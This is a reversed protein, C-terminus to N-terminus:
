LLNVIYGWLNSSICMRLNVMLILIFYIVLIFYLKRYTKKIYSLFFSTLISIFPFIHVLYVAKIAEGEEFATYQILFWLYGIFITLVISLLVFMTMKIRNKFALVLCFIISSLIILSPVLNLFNVIGLYRNLFIDRSHVVSFRMWYDGWIESYLIPWLQNYFSGQLPVTFLKDLSLSFYFSAPQNDFFFINDTDPSAVYKIFSGTTFFLHLYFAGGVIFATVLLISYTKILSIFSEKKMVFFFIGSGFIGLIVFLGLQISLISLGLFFGCLILPTVKKERLYKLFCYVAIISCTALYPNPRPFAFTKYYAPFVGLILMTQIKFLYDGNKIIDCINLLFFLLIISLILNFFQAVKLSLYVSKTITLTLAPIIYSLPPSFFERTEIINRPLRKDFALIEIYKIHESSDYDRYPDHFISNLLM